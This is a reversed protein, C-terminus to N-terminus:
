DIKFYIWWEMFLLFFANMRLVPFYWTDDIAYMIENSQISIGRWFRKNSSNSKSPFTWNWNINKWQFHIPMGNKQTHQQELTQQANEILFLLVHLCELSQNIEIVIRFISTYILVLTMFIVLLAWRYYQKQFYSECSPM